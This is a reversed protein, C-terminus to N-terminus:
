AQNREAKMFERLHAVDVRRQDRAKIRQAVTQPDAEIVVVADLNLSAFVDVELRTLESAATLLVFHGDLLLRTGAENYRQVAAALARQNADVDIVRKDDSWTTLAREEGILTSASTHVMGVAPAARSALHTKGVGHIGAVFVNM